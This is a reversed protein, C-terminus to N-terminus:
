FILGLSLLFLFFGLFSPLTVLGENRKEGLERSRMRRCLTGRRLEGRVRFRGLNRKAPGSKRSPDM